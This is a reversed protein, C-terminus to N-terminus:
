PVKQMLPVGDPAFERGSLQQVPEGDLFQRHAQAQWDGFWAKFAPTRVQVWQRYDLKTQGAAKARDYAEKGGYLREAQKFQREADTADPAQGQRSFRAQGVDTSPGAQYLALSAGPYIGDKLQEQIKSIIKELTM